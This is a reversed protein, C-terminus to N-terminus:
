FYDETPNENDKLAGKLASGWTYVSYVGKGEGGGRKAKM